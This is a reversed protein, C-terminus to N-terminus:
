KIAEKIEDAKALAAQRGLKVVEKSVSFEFPDYKKIDPVVLVDAKKENQRSFEWDPINMTLTITEILNKPKPQEWGRYNVDVAIIKDAGM